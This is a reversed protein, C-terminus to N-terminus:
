LAGMADAHMRALFDSGCTPDRSRLAREWGPYGMEFMARSMRGDKAPYLAGGAQRVIADLQGMLGLTPQGQNRFDLALTYGPRPFSLLGPSAIDGFAKLVVLASGQGSRAILALMEALSAQAGARPVVCQYQYFGAKGYAKNWGAIGDLPHFVSAYPLRQVRPSSLSRWRYLSNFATLSLRNILFGPTQVPLSLRPPTHPAFPGGPAWNARSYYGRGLNRGSATCDVWAVTHEFGEASAADYAFFDALRAMPLTEAYLQSSPIPALRLTVDLIVGTLGLGGITAAYLEPEAEATVEVVGRDSRLLTFALVHRGFTGARHHNKGHVDNAVAGGMTVQRTGPTVPVFWGRPVMAKLLADLSLGAEARVVGTQADFALFHDLATMDVLRGASYLATDGYSRRLGLALRPGDDEGALARLDEVHRPHAVSQTRRAVRGWTMVGDTSHFTLAM